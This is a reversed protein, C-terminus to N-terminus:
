KQPKKLCSVLRSFAKDIQHVDDLLPKQEAIYERMAGVIRRKDNKSQKTLKSILLETPDFYLTHPLRTSADLVSVIHHITKNEHPFQDVLGAIVKESERYSSVLLGDFASQWLATGLDANHIVKLYEDDFNLSGHATQLVLSLANEWQEIEKLSHGDNSDEELGRYNFSDEGESEPNFESKWKELEDIPYHFSEDESGESSPYLLDFTEDDDEDTIIAISYWTNFVFSFEGVIQEALIPNESHACLELWGMFAETELEDPLAEFSTPDFIHEQIDSLMTFLEIVAGEDSMWIEPAHITLAASLKFVHVALHKDLNTWHQINKLYSLEETILKLWEAILEQPIQNQNLQSFIEGRNETAGQLEPTYEGLQVLKEFHRREVLCLTECFDRQARADSFRPDSQIQHLENDPDRHKLAQEILLDLMLKRDVPAVVDGGQESSRHASNQRHINLALVWM